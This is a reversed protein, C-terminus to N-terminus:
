ASGGARFRRQHIINQGRGLTVQPGVIWAVRNLGGAHYVTSKIGGEACGLFNNGAM